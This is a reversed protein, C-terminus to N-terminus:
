NVGAAVPTLCLVSCNVSSAVPLGCLTTSVPIPFEPAWAKIGDGFPTSKWVCIREVVLELLTIVMVLALPEENVIEPTAKVPAFAPSKLMTGPEEQVPTNGAFEIQLMLTLKVGDASPM